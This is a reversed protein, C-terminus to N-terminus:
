SLRLLAVPSLVQVVTMAVQFARKTVQSLTDVLQSQAVLVDPFSTARM